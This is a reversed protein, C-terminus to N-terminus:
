VGWGLKRKNIYYFIGLVRMQIILAILFIFWYLLLPVFLIDIQEVLDLVYVRLILVLGFALCAITYHKPAKMISSLVFVPNLCILSDSMAVGLLAMPFYIMGLLLTFQGALAGAFYWVVLAPAFSLALTGILQLFPQIIDAQIDSVEPWGPPDAEGSASCVVIKQMYAFLYGYTIVVLPIAYLFAFRLLISMFSYFITGCVLLLLGNGKFPYKFSGTVASGFSKPLSAAAAAERAAISAKKCQGGCSTCFEAITMGLKRQTTCQACAKRGCKPCVFKAAVGPHNVCDDPGAVVGTAGPAAGNVRVPIPPNSLPPPPLNLTIPAEVVAARSPDGEFLMEINGLRLKQGPQVLAERIQQGEIFTGNTSGLDRVLLNGSADLAVECHRSSVSGDAVLFDNGEARGMKLANSGIAYTSGAFDGNIVKLLAM